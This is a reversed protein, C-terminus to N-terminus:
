RTEKPISARILAHAESMPALMDADEPHHRLHAAELRAFLHFLIGVVQGDFDIHPLKSRSPAEVVERHHRVHERRWADLDGGHERRWPEEAPFECCPHPM